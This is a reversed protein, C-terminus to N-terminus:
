GFNRAKWQVVVPERALMFPEVAQTADEREESPDFIRSVMACTRIFSSSLM